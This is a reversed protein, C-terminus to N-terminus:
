RDRPVGAGAADPDGRRSCRRLSAVVAMAAAVALVVVFILSPQGVNTSGFITM